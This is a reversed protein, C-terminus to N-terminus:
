IAAPIDSGSLDLTGYRKEYEVIARGLLVAMRKAAFPNMVIRDSINVKVEKQEANWAQNMGFLLVMEEKGGTVNAVNAYSSRMASDDWVIKIGETSTAEPTAAKKTNEKTM